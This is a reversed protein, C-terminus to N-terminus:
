FGIEEDILINKVDKYERSTYDSHGFSREKGNL